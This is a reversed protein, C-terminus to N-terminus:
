LDIEEGEDPEPSMPVKRRMIIDGNPLMEPAHYNSLDDVKGLLDNLAPGMEQVFERMAPQMDQMLRQLQELAPEAEDMMGRLFLKAGEEMLSFGDGEEEQAAAFTPLAAVLAIAIIRKM